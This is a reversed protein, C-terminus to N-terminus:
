HEFKPPIPPKGKYIISQLYKTSVVRQKQINRRERFKKPYLSVGQIWGSFFAGFGGKILRAAFMRSYRYTAPIFYKVALKIPLNKIYILWFNKASQRIAFYGLKSSTASLQHYVIATPEFLVKWGFIQARFSIDVDEYYAFFDEDFLGVEKLMTARYLSAGGSAGFVQKENDYQGKDLENRGRPFPMGTTTYWDGTSDLRGTDGILIKSTVIGVGKNKSLIGVLQEAWDEKAAADNNFLGIFDFGKEIAYNIGINVGGAFGHNKTQKLVVVQKSKEYSDLIKLSGDISGNEVIIVTIKITQNLLSDICTRLLDEGNWNPVVIAVSNMFM